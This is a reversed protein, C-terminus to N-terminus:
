VRWFHKIITKDIINYGAKKYFMCAQSNDLQTPIKLKKIKRKAIEHEAAALLLKGIGKGQVSENVGFLGVEAEDEKVKYTILGLVVGEDIYMLIDDAFTKSISNDIWKQYLARFKEISINRDLKFRSYKGSEYALDYLLEEGVQFNDISVIEAQLTDITNLNNKSFVVKSQSLTCEFGELQLNFPNKSKVYVLDFDAINDPEKNLLNLEFEGVKKNFFDSDWQLLKIMM